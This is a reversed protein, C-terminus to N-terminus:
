FSISYYRNELMRRTEWLNQLTFWTNGQPPVDSIPFFFKIFLLIWESLFSGAITIFSTFAKIQVGPMIFINYIKSQIKCWNFYMDIPQLYFFDLTKTDTM